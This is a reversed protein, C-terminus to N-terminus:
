KIQSQPRFSTMIATGASIGAVQTVKFDREWTNPWCCLYNALSFVCVKEPKKDQEVGTGMVEGAVGLIIIISIIIIFLAQWSIGDTRTTALEDM